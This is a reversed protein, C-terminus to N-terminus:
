SAARKTVGPPGCRRHANGRAIEGVVTCEIQVDGIVLVITGAQVQAVAAHVLVSVDLELQCLVAFGNKTKARLRDVVIVVASTIQHDGVSVDFIRYVIGPWEPLRGLQEGVKATSELQDVNSIRRVVPCRLMHSSTERSEVKVSIPLTIEYDRMDILRRRQQQILRLGVM